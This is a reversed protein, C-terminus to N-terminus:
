VIRYYFGNLVVCLFVCVFDVFSFPGFMGVKSTGHNDKLIVDTFQNPSCFPDIGLIGRRINPPVNVHAM